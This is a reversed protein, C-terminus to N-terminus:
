RDVYLVDNERRLMCANGDQREHPNMSRITQWMGECVRVNNEKHERGDKIRILGLM